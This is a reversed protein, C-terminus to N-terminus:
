RVSGILNAILEFAPTTDPPTRVADSTIARVVDGGRETPVRHVHIIAFPKQALFRPSVRQKMELGVVVGFGGVCRQCRKGAPPRHLIARSRRVVVEGGVTPYLRAFAAWRAGLCAGGVGLPVAVPILPIALDQHEPALAADEIFQHKARAAVRLRACGTLANRRHGAALNLSM